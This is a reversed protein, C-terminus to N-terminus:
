YAKSSVLKQLEESVKEMVSNWDGPAPQRFLRMTPYWPTDEFDIMWRWDCVFPLLTWVPVGLSGAMHVTANDVSVVLDLAAIEAAFGDLDKLSDADEWDYVTIGLKEHVEHLEATCDGYQLNIFSAEKISLLRAWQELTTSRKLRVQAKKGGRWSIGVKISDGIKKFREHWENVKRADPILYNKRPSFSSIDSRLYLPLSGIPIISDVSLLEFPYDTDAASRERVQANPFSRRFIPVLRKDCEVICSDAQEIVEQICSAFMIEDGVGQEAYVFLTSGRLSSGDWLPKSFKHQEHIYEKTKWRWEYEKWGLRFNGGSLLALGMNLHADALSPNVDLARQYYYVAEKLQGKDKLILGLNNYADAYNPNLQLAKKYSALAQDFHEKDKLANGLNYYAEAFSPNLSIANQYYNIAEDLQGKEELALGLNNFLGFTNFNLQLAERYCRIAEDLQGKEQLCIGLNYYTKSSHPKIQLAKEYSAIAEDLQKIEQFINGLNNYADAFEPDIQLARKIYDIARDHEGRQSYIVGLCHLADANNPEKRLIKRCINEAQQLDGSQYYEIALDVAEGINM